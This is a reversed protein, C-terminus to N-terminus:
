DEMKNLDIHKRIAERIASDAMLEQIDGRTLSRIGHGTEYAKMIRWQVSPKPFEFDYDLAKSLKQIVSESPCIRTYNEIMSIYGPSM